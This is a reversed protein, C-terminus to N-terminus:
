CCECVPLVALIVASEHESFSLHHGKVEQLEVGGKVQCIKLKFVVICIGNLYCNARGESEEGVILVVRISSFVSAAVSMNRDISIEESVVGCVSANSLSTQSDVIDLTM